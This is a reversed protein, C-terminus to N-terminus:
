AEVPRPAVSTVLGGLQLTAMELWVCALFAMMLGGCIAVIATIVKRPRVPKLSATAEQVISVNTFRGQDLASDVRAKEERNLYMLYRDETSKILRGIRASETVKQDLDRLRAHSVALQEALARLRASVGEREGSLRAIEQDIALAVPSIGSTSEETMDNRERQLARNAADLKEKNERVLPFDDQYKAMLRAQDIELLQIQATLNELTTTRQRSSSTVTWGPTTKLQAQYASISATVEALRRRLTADEERLGADLKLAADREAPVEAVNMEQKLAQLADEHQRLETALVNAQRSFFGQADSQRHVSVHRDMYHKLLEALVIQSVRPDGSEYSIVMVNSDKMRTATISNSVARLTRDDKTAYPVEHWSAYAYDYARVPAFIMRLYWPEPAQSLGTAKVTDSIVENSTLVAIESNVEEQTVGASIATMPETPDADLQPSSRTKQILVAAYAAFTGPWFFAAAQILIATVVFVALFTRRRRSLALRLRKLTEALEDPAADTARRSWLNPRTAQTM